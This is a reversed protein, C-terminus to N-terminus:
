ELPTSIKIRLLKSYPIRLNSCLLIGASPPSLISPPITARGQNVERTKAAKSTHLWYFHLLGLLRPTLYPHERCLASSQSEGQNSGSVTVVWSDLWLSTGPGQPSLFHVTTPNLPSEPESKSNRTCLCKPIFFALSKQHCRNHWKWSGEERSAGWIM